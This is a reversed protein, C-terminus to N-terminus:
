ARSSLSFIRRRWRLRWHDESRLKRGADAAGSHHQWQPVQHLLAVSKLSNVPTEHNEPQIISAGSYQWQPFYVLPKVLTESCHKGTSAIAKVPLEANLASHIPRV